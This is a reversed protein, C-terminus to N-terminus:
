DLFRARVDPAPLYCQEAGFLQHRHRAVLNYLADRWPRPLLWGIAALRWIGGLYRAIRLVAASRVYTQESAGDGEVWIMSDVGALAPHRTRVSAAFAGQLPAFQLEGQREHRLVFQV